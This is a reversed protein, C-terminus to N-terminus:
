LQLESVSTLCMVTTSSITLAMIWRKRQHMFGAPNILDTDSAAKQVAAFATLVCARSSQRMSSGTTTCRGPQHYLTCVVVADYLGSGEDRQQALQHVGGDAAHMKFRDQLFASRCSHMLCTTQCRAFSMEFLLNVHV